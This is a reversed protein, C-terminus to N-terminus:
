LGKIDTDKLRLLVIVVKYNLGSKLTKIEVINDRGEKIINGRNILLSYLIIYHDM